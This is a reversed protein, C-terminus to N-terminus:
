QDEEENWWIYALIGLAFLLAILSSALLGTHWDAEVMWDFNTTWDDM